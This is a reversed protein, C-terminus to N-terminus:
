DSQKEEIEKWWKPLRGFREVVKTKLADKQEQIHDRKILLEQYEKEIKEQEPKYEKDCHNKTYNEICMRQLKNNGERKLKNYDLDQEVIYLQINYKELTGKYTKEIESAAKANGISLLCTIVVFIFVFIMRKSKKLSSFVVIENTM